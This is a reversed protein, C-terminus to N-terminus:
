NQPESPRDGVYKFSNFIGQDTHFTGAKIFGSRVLLRKSPVNEPSAFAEVTFFSKSAFEALTRTALTAYGKGQQDAKLWGGIRARKHFRTLNGAGVLTEDDWVGMQWDHAPDNHEIMSVVSALDPFDDATPEGFQSLHKRNSDVADFYLPADEVTLRRLTVAENETSLSVPRIM